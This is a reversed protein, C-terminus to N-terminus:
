FIVQSCVECSLLNKGGLDELEVVVSLGTVIKSQEILLKEVASATGGTALLDDIIAFSKFEEISKKQICLTNTGYELKYSSSIIEGPLKGPKRALVLPKKNKIALATGFLFGRADIGVLADCEKIMKSLSMSEILEDFIDPDKLVPLVDRFLIGEEPFDKYSDFCEILKEKLNTM